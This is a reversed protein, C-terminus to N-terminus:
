DNVALKAYSTNTKIHMNTYSSLKTSILCNKEPKVILCGLIVPFMGTAINRCVSIMSGRAHKAINKNIAKDCKFIIYWM